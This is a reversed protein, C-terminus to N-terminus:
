INEENLKNLDHKNILAIIAIAYNPNTAYKKAMTKIQAEPTAKELAHKYATIKKSNIREIYSAVCDDVSNFTMFNSKIKRKNKDYEDDYYKATKGKYKKSAKLGLHNNHKALDSKGNQSELTMQAIVVSPFPTKLGKEKAEKIEQLVIPTIKEIYQERAQNKKNQTKNYKKPKPIKKLDKESLQRSSTTQKSYTNKGFAFNVEVIPTILTAFLGILFGPIVIKLLSM